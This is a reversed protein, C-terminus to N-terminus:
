VLLSSVAEFDQGDIGSIVSPIVGLSHRHDPHLLLDIHAKSPRRRPFHRLGLDSADGLLTLKM